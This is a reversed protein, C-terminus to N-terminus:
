NNLDVQHQLEHKAELNQYTSTQMMIEKAQKILENADGTVSWHLFLAKPSENLM